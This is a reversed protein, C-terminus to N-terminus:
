RQDVEELADYEQLSQVAATLQQYYAKTKCPAESRLHRDLDLLV